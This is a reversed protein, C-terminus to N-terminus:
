EVSYVKWASNPNKTLKINIDKYKKTGRVTFNFSATGYEVGNRKQTSIEGQTIMGFGTVEGVENRIGEDQSLFDTAAHFAGTTRFVSLLIILGFLLFSFFGIGLKAWITGKKQLKRRQYVTFLFAILALLLFFFGITGSDWFFYIGVMRCVYGYIVLIAGIITTIRIFKKM